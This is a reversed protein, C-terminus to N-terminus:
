KIRMKKFSITNALVGIILLIPAVLYISNLNIASNEYSFALQGTIVDTIRYYAFPNYQIFKKMQDGGLCLILTLLLGIILTASSSHIFISILLTFVIALTVLLFLVVLAIFIFKIVPITSRTEGLVLTFPYDKNGLGFIPILSLFSIGLVLLIWSYNIILASIVKSFFIKTKNIPQTYLFKYTDSEFDSPILSSTFYIVLVLILIVFLSNLVVTMYNLAQMSNETFIPEINQELLLKNIEVDKRVEDASLSTIIMGSAIEQAMKEDYQIKNELYLNWDELILALKIQTLLQIDLESSTIIKQLQKNEPMALLEQRLRPLASQQLSLNNNINERLNYNEAMNQQNKMYIFGALLVGFVMLLIYNNRNLMFKKLELKILKLM